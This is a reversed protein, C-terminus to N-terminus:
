SEGGEQIIQMMRTITNVYLPIVKGRDRLVEALSVVPPAELYLKELVTDNVFLDIPSGDFIVKGEAMGVVRDAYSAVHEMDHTIDIITTGESRMENLISLLNTINKQDQGTMPEDLILVEPRTILMTAVSLRRKQGKSLLLPSISRMDQLSFLELMKETRLLVEEEAINMARPSFAIEDFVNNAVFQHEPYQFVYGVRGVLNRLPIEGINKSLFKINGDSANLLGVMLKALTTKGSGNQGVLCLFEGQKVKLSVGDVACVGNPYSFQVDELDLIPEADSPNDAEDIGRKKGERPLLRVDLSSIVAAAAESSLPIPNVPYGKERIQLTLDVMQPLFIGLENKLYDGEQSFIKQPSGDIVIKGENMVVIRDVMSIIHDPRHDALIIIKKPDDERLERIARYTESAGVPDLNSTPNDLLITKPLMALSAAIAVRQKQGGSLAFVSREKLDSLGSKELARDTRAIIDEKPLVLNEPGFAVEDYVYLNTLQSEPDQLILGVNAALSAVPTIRTDHGDVFVRGKVKGGTLSPVVGNMSLILTSKGCGSPGIILVTEGENISLSINDLAPDDVGPYWFSFKDIKIM